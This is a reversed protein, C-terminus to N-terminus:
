RRSIERWLKVRKRLSPRDRCLRNRQGSTNVIVIEIDADNFKLRVGRVLANQAEKEEDSRNDLRRSEVLSEWVKPVFRWEMEQEFFKFESHPGNKQFGEVPKLYPLLPWFDGFDAAIIKATAIKRNFRLSLQQALDSGKSVYLVPNLGQETGWKKTLGITYDGYARRHSRSNSIPIDCFCVLPLLLRRLRGEEMWSFDEDCFRPIFEGNKIALRFWKWGRVYRYLANAKPLSAIM